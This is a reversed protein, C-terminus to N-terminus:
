DDLVDEKFIKVGDENEEVISYGCDILSYFEEQTMQLYVVTDNLFKKKTCVTVKM